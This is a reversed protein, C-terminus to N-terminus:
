KTYIPQYYDLVVGSGFIKTKLLKLQLAGQLDGFLRTGQGLIIPNVYLRYEATLPGTM